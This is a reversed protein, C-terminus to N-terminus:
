GAILLERPITSLPRLGEDTMLVTDIAAAEFHEVRDRLISEFNSLYGEELTIRHPGDNALYTHGVWSPPFSVGLAYGGTWWVKEAPVRDRLAQEARAMAIAPDDGPHANACLVDLSERAADLLQSVGPHARGLSFVRCLNVHYRDVVASADVSVIDGPELVRRSPFSHVDRWASPGSAVLPHQAPVEGGEESMFTTVLAAVELESLGPRLTEHLRRFVRDAIAGAALVREREAPSKYVRLGDVIWDGASVSMGRASLEEGLPVMVGPVPTPSSWELAVRAGPSRRALQEAVTIHATGYDFFEAEDYLADYPLFEEHRSWDFFLTREEHAWVAVGVPLRPPYWSAEYDTLWFLNAPSTVLLVDIELERLAARLRGTRERYEDLGFRPHEPVNM